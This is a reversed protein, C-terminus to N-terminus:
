LASDDENMSADLKSTNRHNQQMLSIRAYAICGFVALLPGINARQPGERDFLYYGVGYIIVTKAQGIVQYAPSIKGLLYFHLQGPCGDYVSIFVLRSESTWKYDVYLVM